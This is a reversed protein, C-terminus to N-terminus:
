TARNISRLKQDCWRWIKEDPCDLAKLLLRETLIQLRVLNRYLEHPEACFARHFLNNRMELSKELGKEFTESDWLDETVINFEKCCYIIKDSTKMGKLEPLKEKAKEIISSYDEEKSLDDLLLRLSKEIKKWKGSPIKLEKSFKEVFGDCFSELSIICLFYNVEMTNGSESSSLFSISRRLTEIIPSAQLTCYLKFLGGNVLDRHNVLEDEFDPYFKQYIKKRVIPQIFNKDKQNSKLIFNIEYWNVSRRYCLSLILCIDRIEDEVLDKISKSSLGKSVNIDYFLAPREIQVTAKNDFVKYDEYTYRVFAKGKGISMDWEIEDSYGGNLEISGDYHLTRSGWKRLIGSPTLEVELYIHEANEIPNDSIAYDYGYINLDAKKDQLSYGGIGRLTIEFPEKGSSNIILNGFENGFIFNRFTKYHGKDDSLLHIECSLKGPDYKDHEIKLLVPTDPSIFGRLEIIRKETFM